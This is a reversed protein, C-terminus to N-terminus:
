QIRLGFGLGNASLSAGDYKPVQRWTGTVVMGVRTSFLIAGEVRTHISSTTAAARPRGSSNNRANFHMVGPGSTVELSLKQYRVQGGVQLGFFSFGALGPRCGGGPEIPCPLDDGQLPPDIAAGAFGALLFGVTSRPLLKLGVVGEPILKSHEADRVSDVASVSFTFYPQVSKSQAGISSTSLFVNFALAAFSWRHLYM